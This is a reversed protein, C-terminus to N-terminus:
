RPVLRRARHATAAPRPPRPAAPPPCMSPIIPDTGGLGSSSALTAASGGTLSSGRTPRARARAASSWKVSRRSSAGIATASIAPSTSSPSSAAALRASGASTRPPISEPTCAFANWKTM